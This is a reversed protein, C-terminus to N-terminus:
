YKIGLVDVIGCNNADLSAPASFIRKTSVKDKGTGKNSYGTVVWFDNDDHSLNVASYNTMIYNLLFVDTMTYEIDKGEDSCFLFCLKDFNTFDQTLYFSGHAYGNLVGSSFNNDGGYARVGYTTNNINRVDTGGNCAKMTNWDIISTITPTNHGGVQRYVDALHAGDLKDANTASSANGSINIGM